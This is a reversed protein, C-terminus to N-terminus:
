GWLYRDAVRHHNYITMEQGMSLRHGDFSPSHMGITVDLANGIDQELIQGLDAAPDKWDAFFQPTFEPRKTGYDAVPIQELCFAEYIASDPDLGNPRARYGIMNGQNALLITNPFVNWATGAIAFQEATIEEWELGQEGAVRRCLEGFVQRATKGEPIPTARLEAAAKLEYDAHLARLMDHMSEVGHALLERPDDTPADFMVRRKVSTDDPGGSFSVVRDARQGQSAYRAHREWVGTPSWGRTDLEKLSILNINSKDWRGLQPHTGPVHYAELFGDLVTKWNCPVIVAKWWKIRMNEYHFPGFVTPIPDLYDLLPQADLDMNIFV